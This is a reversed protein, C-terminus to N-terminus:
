KINWGIRSRTINKYEKVGEFQNYVMGLVGDVGLFARDCGVWGRCEGVLVLWVVWVWGAASPPPTVGLVVGHVAAGLWFYSLFSNRVKEFVESVM